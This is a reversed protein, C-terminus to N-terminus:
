GPKPVAHDNFNIQVRILTSLQWKERDKMSSSSEQSMKRAVIVYKKM